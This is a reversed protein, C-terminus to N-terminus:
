GENSFDIFIKFFDLYIVCYIYICNVNKLNSLNTIFQEFPLLINYYIM